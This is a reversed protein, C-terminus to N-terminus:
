HMDDDDDFEWEFRNVSGGEVLPGSVEVPGSGDAAATYLATAGSTGKPALYALRESDPSFRFRNFGFRNSGLTATYLRTGVTAGAAVSFLELVTVSDSREVHYALRRGDPAWDFAVFVGSNMSRTAEFVTTRNSGDPSVTHLGVDSEGEGVYALLRADPSWDFRIFANGTLRAISTNGTGNPLVTFLEMTLGQGQPGDRDLTYALRSSDGAWKLWTFVFGDLPATGRGVQAFGPGNAAATHVEASKEQASVLNVAYAVRSSDPAWEFFSVDVETAASGQSDYVNQLGTGDSAVTHVSARALANARLSLAYVLRSGDPAWEYYVNNNEGPAAPRDIVTTNGTGDPAVTRLTASANDGAFSGSHISYAIRRASPSWQYSLFLYDVNARTVEHILTPERAAPSLTYLRTIRDTATSLNVSFALRSGDPAWEFGVGEVTTGLPLTSPDFVSRDATGDVAVVHVENAGITPQAIYVLWRSDPSWEFWDVSPEGRSVKVAPAASVLSAVYLANAFPSDIRGYLAVRTRDPSLEFDWISGQAIRPGILKRVRAGDRATSFLEFTDDVNADAVYVLGDFSDGSAACLYETATVETADLTGNDNADTGADIRTGGFECNVGAPEDSRAILSDNGDNGNCLVQSDDVENADLVGNGNDDIGSEVRIGGAPCEAGPPIVEAVAVTSANTDTEDEGNGKGGGGCGGLMLVAGALVALMSKLPLRM